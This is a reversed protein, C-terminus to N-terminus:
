DGGRVPWFLSTDSQKGANGFYGETSLRNRIYERRDQMYTTCTAHFYSSDAANFTFITNNFAPNVRGADVLSFIEKANPLRWDGQRSGDGPSTCPGPPFNRAHALAAPWSVPSDACNSDKLWVLGTLNDRVVEGNGDDSLDSFREASFDRWDVGIQYDGDQGTGSCGIANGDTDYCITQGTAPVPAMYSFHAGPTNSPTFSNRVPWVYYDSSKFPTVILLWNPRALWARNWAGSNYNASTSTWYFEKLNTFYPSYTSAYNMSTVNFNLLSALERVNPLRWDNRGNYNATNLCAIYDLADQWGLDGGTCSGVTPTGADEAWVLGTLNDRITGDGLDTFRPDPWHTGAQLDGDQGQWTGSCATLSGDNGYCRTQGTRPIPAPYIPAAVGRLGFTGTDATLSFESVATSQRIHFRIPEPDNTPSSSGKYQYEDRRELDFEPNIAVIAKDDGRLHYLDVLFSTYTSAVDSGNDQGWYTIELTDGNGILAGNAGHGTGISDTDSDYSVHGSPNTITMQLNGFRYLYLTRRNGQGVYAYDYKQDEDIEDIDKGRINNSNGSTQIDYQSFSSINVGTGTGSSPTHSCGIREQLHSLTVFEVIDDFANGGVEQGTAPVPVTNATTFTAIAIDGQMNPGNSKIIFAIDIANQGGRQVILDTGTADCLVDPDSSLPDGDQDNAVRYMFPQNWFDGAQAKPLSSIDTANVEGATMGPLRERQMAFGIIEDRASIVDGRGQVGRDMTIRSTIAPIVLAAIIGIVIVIIATEVLTFGPPQAVTPTHTDTRTPPPPSDGATRTYTRTDTRTCPSTRTHSPTHTM